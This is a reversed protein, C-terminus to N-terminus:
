NADIEAYQLLNEEEYAQLLEAMKKYKELSKQRSKTMSNLETKFKTLFPEIKKM